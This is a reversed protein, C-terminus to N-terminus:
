MREMVEIGLLDLGTELTIATHQCLSLRSARTRTDVTDHLIPCREYFRMFLGALEYLYGCLLHPLADDTVAQLAEPFQLLKLALAREEEQALILDATNRADQSDSRRFISRIRTYAYQLYPATNGDLSLMQDWNFLYDSTRNKSLDAYKIAGIGVKRAVEQRERETLGTERSDLMRRARDVAEHILDALKVTDGSRTKFPKGDEGLMKGFPHHELSTDSGVFGAKRSILFMQQMHLKQRDDIFYLIRSAGLGRARHRAAALDTTAYLYGGDTKQVIVAMPQNDRDRLEDLFVVQAGDSEALLGEDRLSNVLEALENNYASEPKMDAPTLSVNLLRYIEECHSFSIEIFRHWLKRCHTDGGQLRVVYDRSRAAFNSDSDFRLKAKRYFAELDALATHEIDSDLAMQDEMHAILMGFQTGWDGVHNQRIVRHGQFELARVVADGIITSRLHGVHMEKALNPGSYDVVVTQAAPRDIGLLSDDRRADLRAALWNRDLRINIFGPGAVSVEQAVGSLELLDVIRGALERPNAKMQKAAAMAGNAQYDGFEPRTGPTVAPTCEVPIGAKVMAQHVRDSLFIQLNM